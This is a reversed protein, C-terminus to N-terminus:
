EHNAFIEPHISKAPTGAPAVNLEASLPVKVPPLCLQDTCAQYRLTLPIKMAGLAADAGAEMTMRAVFRGEYVAMPKAAFPFKKLLARPYHTEVLAVGPSLEAALVLPILYDELVKSAQVHYGAAVEGVVAIEFRRGRPVPELSVYVQSHVVDAPKILKAGEQAALPASVRTRAEAGTEAAVWAILAAFLAACAAQTSLRTRTGRGEANETDRRKMRM